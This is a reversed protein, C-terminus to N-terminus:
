CPLSRIRAALSLVCGDALRPARLGDLANHAEILADLYNTADTVERLQARLTHVREGLLRIREPDPITRKTDDDLHYAQPAGADALAQEIERLTREAKVAREESYRGAGLLTKVGEVADEAVCPVPAGIVECIRTLAAWAGCIKAVHAMRDDLSGAGNLGMKDFYLSLANQYGEGWTKTAVTQRQATDLDARLEAILADKAALDRELDAIRMDRAAVEAVTSAIKAKAADRERLACDIDHQAAASDSTARNNIARVEGQLDGGPNVGLDRLASELDKIRAQADSLAARNQERRSSSTKAEAVLDEPACQGLGLATIARRMIDLQDLDTM